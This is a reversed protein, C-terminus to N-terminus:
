PLTRDSDPHPASRGPGPGSAAIRASNGSTRAASRAPDAAAGIAAPISSLSRAVPATIGLPCTSGHSRRQEADRPGSRRDDSEAGPFTVSSANRTISTSIDSTSRRVRSLQDAARRVTGVYGRSSIGTFNTRPRHQDLKRIVKAVQQQLQGVCTRLKDQYHARQPRGRGDVRWWLLCLRHPPSRGRLSRHCAM